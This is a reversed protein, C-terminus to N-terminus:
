KNISFLNIKRLFYLFPNFNTFVITITKSDLKPLFCSLDADLANILSLNRAKHVIEYGESNLDLEKYKKKGFFRTSFLNEKDKDENVKVSFIKCKKSKLEDLENHLVFGVEIHGDVILHSNMGLYDEIWFYYINFKNMILFYGNEYRAKICDSLIIDQQSESFRKENLGLLIVKPYSYTKCFTFDDIIYIDKKENFVPVSYVEKSQNPSLLYNSETM